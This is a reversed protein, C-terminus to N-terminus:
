QIHYGRGDATGEDGVLAHFVVGADPVDGQFVPMLGEIHADEVVFPQLGGDPLEDLGNDFSHPGLLLRSSGRKEEWRTWMGTAFGAKM